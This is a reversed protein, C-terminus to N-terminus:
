VAVKDIESSRKAINDLLDNLDKNQSDKNCKCKLHHIGKECEVSNHQPKIEKDCVFCITM